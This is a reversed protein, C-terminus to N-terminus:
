KVINSELILPPRRGRTSLTTTIQQCPRRWLEKLPPEGEASPDPFFDLPLPFYTSKQFIILFVKKELFIVLFFILVVKKLFIVLFVKKLFIILFVPPPVRCMRLPCDFHFYVWRSESDGADDQRCCRRKRHCVHQRQRTDNHTKTKLSLPKRIQKNTCRKM